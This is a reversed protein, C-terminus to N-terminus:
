YTLGLPIHSCGSVELAQIQVDEVTRDFHKAIVINVIKRDDLHSFRAQSRQKGPFSNSTKLSPSESFQKYVNALLASQLCFVLDIRLLSCGITCSLPKSIM